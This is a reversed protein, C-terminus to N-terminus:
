NVKNKGDCNTEGIGEKVDMGRGGKGMDILEKHREKKLGINSMEEM